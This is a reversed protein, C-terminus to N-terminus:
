RPSGLVSMGRKGVEANRRVINFQARPTIRVYRTNKNATYTILYQNHPIPIAQNTKEYQDWASRIAPYAGDWYPIINTFFLECDKHMRETQEEARTGVTPVNAVLTMHTESYEVTVNPTKATWTGLKLQAPSGLGYFVVAKTPWEYWEWGSCFPILLFIVCVGFRSRM